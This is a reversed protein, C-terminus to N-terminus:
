RGSEMAIHIFVSSAEYLTHLPEPFRLLLQEAEKRWLRGQLCPLAMLATDHTALRSNNHLVQGVLLAREPALGKLDPHTLALHIEDYAYGQRQISMDSHLRDMFPYYHDQIERGQLWIVADCIGIQEYNMRPQASLNHTFYALSQLRRAEDSDHMGLFFTADIYLPSDTM